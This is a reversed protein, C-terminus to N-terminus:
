WNAELGLSAGHVFLDGRLIRQGSTAVIGFDLQDTALAVDAVYMLYYGVRLMWVDNLQRYCGLNMDGLITPSGALASGNRLFITNDNDLLLQQQRMLSGFFGAKTTLEWGWRNKFWGTRFGFQLGILDNQSHVTYDSTGSDADSSSLVVAESLHFYRLGALASWTEGDFVFNAEANHLSTAHSLAIRDAGSYDAAVDRLTGAIDLNNSDAVAAASREYLGFYSLEWGRDVSVRHGLLLRSGPQLGYNLDSTEFVTELTDASIALPRSYGNTRHLILADFQFYWTHYRGMLRPPCFHGEYASDDFDAWVDDDDTPSATLTSGLVEPIQEILREDAAAPRAVLLIAILAFAHRALV